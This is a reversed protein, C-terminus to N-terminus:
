LGLGTAAIKAFATARGKAVARQVFGAPRAQPSSGANLDGIYPANNRIFITDGPTWRRAVVAIRATTAQGTPDNQTLPNVAPANVSPRWNARAFGTDVPTRPVLEDGIETTVTVILRTVGNTLNDAIEDLRNALVRTPM